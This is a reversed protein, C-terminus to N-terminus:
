RHGQARWLELQTRRIAQQIALSRLRVERATRYAELLEAIPREGERYATEAQRLLDALRAVQSADHASAQDRRRALEARALDIQTTATWEIVAQEARWAGREALARARAGAHHDFLPLELAVGAVYGWASDDGLDAVKLGGTLTLIPLWSRRTAVLELTAAQERLAAARYDGRQRALAAAPDDGPAATVIADAADFIADPKGVLVAIQKRTRALDGEAEIILDDYGGLEVELRTVDYGSAEGATARARVVAMATDFSARADRLVTLRARAAAGEYYAALADVVLRWRDLEIAAETAAVAGAAAQIRDGRRGALDIPWSLRVTHEPLAAGSAFVEERDVAVAPDPRQGAEVVAARDREVRTALAALRPEAREFRALFEAETLEPPADARAV